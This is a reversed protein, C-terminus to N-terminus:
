IQGGMLKIVPASVPRRRFTLRLPEERSLCGKPRTERVMRGSVFPVCPSKDERINWVRVQSWIVRRKVTLKKVFTLHLVPFKVWPMPPVGPRSNAFVERAPVNCSYLIIDRRLAFTRIV